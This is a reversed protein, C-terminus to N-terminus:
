GNTSRTTQFKLAAMKATYSRQPKEENSSSAEESVSGLWLQKIPNKTPDSM